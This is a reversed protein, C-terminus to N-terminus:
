KKWSILEVGITTQFTITNNSHAISSLFHQIQEMNPTAHNIELHWLVSELVEDYPKVHLRTEEIYESCYDLANADLWIKLKEAGPPAKLPIEHGKFIPDLLTSERKGAWGLYVCYERALTHFKLFDLDNKFAPSMSSFLIDFHENTNFHDWTNCTFTFKSLLGEEKADEKLINLMQESFDLATVQLANKAIHLTYMGTGCGVDLINKNQFIIGRETVKTLIKKQFSGERNSFREYHQAKKDWLHSTSNFM